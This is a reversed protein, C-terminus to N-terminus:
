SRHEEAPAVDFCITFSGGTVGQESFTLRNITRLGQPTHHVILNRAELVGDFRASPPVINWDELYGFRVQATCKTGLSGLHFRKNAEVFARIFEERSSARLACQGGFGDCTTAGLEYAGNVVRRTIPREDEVFVGRWKREGATASFTCPADHLEDLASGGEKLVLVGNSHMPRRFKISKLRVPGDGRAELLDAVAALISTGHLYDRADIFPFDTHQRIM